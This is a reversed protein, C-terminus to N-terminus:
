RPTQADGSGFLEFQGPKEKTRRTTARTGSVGLVLLQRLSARPVFVRHAAEPPNLYFGYVENQLLDASMVAELMAGDKFALRVWLGGSRPRTGFTRRPLAPTGEEFDRVFHVLKVDPYPLLAAAGSTTLMELGAPTLFTEPQIYGAL